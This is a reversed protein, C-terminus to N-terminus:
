RARIDLGCVTSLTAGTGFIKRLQEANDRAAQWSAEGTAVAKLASMALIEAGEDIKDQSAEPFAGELLGRCVQHVAREDVRM